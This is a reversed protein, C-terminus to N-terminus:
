WSGFAGVLVLELDLRGWALMLSWGVVIWDSILELVGLV